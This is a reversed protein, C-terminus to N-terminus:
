MSRPLHPLDHERSNDEVKKQINTETKDDRDADERKLPYLGMISLRNAIADVDFSGGYLLSSGCVFDQKNVDSCSPNEHGNNLVAPVVTMLQLSNPIPTSALLRRLTERASREVLSETESILPKVLGPLLPAMSSSIAPGASVLYAQGSSCVDIVPIHVIPDSMFPTFTPFQSAPLSVLSSVPLSLHVLPDHMLAPLNLPPLEAAEIGLKSPVVSVPSGAASLLSTLPPLPLSEMSTSRLPSPTITYQLSSPCPPCWCYYPRFMTSQVNVESAPCYAALPKFSLALSPLSSVSPLGLPVSGCNENDALSEGECQKSSLVPSKCTSEPAFPEGPITSSILHCEGRRKLKERAGSRICSSTRATGDKFTNSRPSLSAQYVPNGKATHAASIRFRSSKSIVSSSQSYSGHPNSAALLNNSSATSKVEVFNSSGLLYAQLHTGFSNLRSESIGTLHSITPRRKLLDKMEALLEMGYHKSKESCWYYFVQSGSLKLQFSRGSSDAPIEEIIVESYELGNSVLALRETHGDDSIFSIRMNSSPLLTLNLCGRISTPCLLNGKKNVKGVRMSVLPICLCRTLMGIEAVEFHQSLQTILRDEAAGNSVNLKLLPQLREGARCAGLVQLDLARLWQMLGNEGDTHELLLDGDSEGRLADRLREAFDSGGGGSSGAADSPRSSRSEKVETSEEGADSRLPRDSDGPREDEAFGEKRPSAM